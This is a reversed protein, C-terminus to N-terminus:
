FLGRPLITIAFKLLWFPKFCTPLAVNTCVADDPSGMMPSAPVSPKPDIWDPASSRDFTSIVSSSTFRIVACRLKWAADLAISVDVWSVCVIM